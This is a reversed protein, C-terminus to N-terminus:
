LQAELYLASYASVRHTLYLDDLYQSQTVNIDLGLRWRDRDDNSGLRLVATLGLTGSVVPGLERDGTRLAPVDFGPRLVYARQWFKV